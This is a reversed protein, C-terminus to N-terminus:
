DNVIEYHAMFVLTCPGVGTEYKNIFTGDNTYRMLYGNASYDGWGYEGAVYSTIFIEGSIPDVGIAAPYFISGETDNLFISETNTTLDYTKYKHTFTPTYNEDYQTDQEILYLKDKYYAMWNASTLTTVNDSADIKQVTPLVDYYNGWSNVYLNKGDSLISNPNAAVTIDKVKHLDGASLKVVNTKYDYTDYMSSGDNYKDYANCVYVYGDQVAIGELYSGVKESTANVAFTTTSIKSVTGDYSSVYVFDKDTALERPAQVKIQVSQSTNVNLMEVVNEDTCAIFLNSGVLVASNPTGGLARGTASKFMDHSITGNIGYSLYDMSGNIKSAYNGENIVLLDGVIIEKYKIINSDNDDDHCSTLGTTLVVASLLALFFHKTKMTTINITKLINRERAGRM